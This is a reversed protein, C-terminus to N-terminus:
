CVMDEYEDMQAAASVVTASGGIQKEDNISVEMAQGGTNSLMKLAPDETNPLQKAASDTSTLNETGSDNIITKKPKFLKKAAVREKDKVRQFDLVRVNRLTYIM